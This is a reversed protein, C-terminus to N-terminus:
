LNMKQERELVEDIFYALSHYTAYDGRTYLFEHWENGGIAKSKGTWVFAIAM